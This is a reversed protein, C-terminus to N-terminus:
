NFGAIADAWDADLEDASNFEEYDAARKGLNPPRGDICEAGDIRWQVVHGEGRADREWCWLITREHGRRVVAGAGMDLDCCVCILRIGPVARGLRQIAPGVSAVRARLADWRDGPGTTYRVALFLVALEAPLSGPAALASLLDALVPVWNKAGPTAGLTPLLEALPAAIRLKLSSLAPAAAAIEPLSPLLKEAHCARCAYCPEGYLELHRISPRGTCYAAAHGAPGHFSSLLPLSSAPVSIPAYIRSSPPIKFSSNVSLMRLAPFSLLVSNAGDPFKHLGSLTLLLTELAPFNLRPSQRTLHEVFCKTSQPIITRSLRSLNKTSGSNKLTLPDAQGQSPVGFGTMCSILSLSNLASLQTSCIAALTTVTMRVYQFTLHRLNTFHLLAACIDAVDPASNRRGLVTCERVIPAIHPFTYVTIISHLRHSHRLNFVCSQFLVSYAPAQLYRSVLAILSSNCRSRPSGPEPIFLANPYSSSSFISLATSLSRVSSITFGSMFRSSASTSSFQSPFGLGLGAYQSSTVAGDSSRTKLAPAARPPTAAKHLTRTPSSLRLRSSLTDAPTHAGAGPTPSACRSDPLGLLRLENSSSSPVLLGLGVHAPTSSEVFSADNFFCDSPSPPFGEYIAKTSVARNRRTSPAQRTFGSGTSFKLAKLMKEQVSTSQFRDAQAIIDPLEPVLKPSPAPAADALFSYSSDTDESFSSDSSACYDSLAQLTTSSPGAASPLFLLSM